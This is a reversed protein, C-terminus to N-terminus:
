GHSLFVIKFLYFMAGFCLCFCIFVWWKGCKISIEADKILSRVYMAVLSVIVLSCSCWFLNAPSQVLHWYAILITVGVTLVDIFLELLIIGLERKPTKLRINNKIFSFLCVLVIPLGFVLYPFSDGNHPEDGSNTKVPQEIYTKPM